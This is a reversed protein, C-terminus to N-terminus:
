GKRWSRGDTSDSEGEKLVAYFDTCKRTYSISNNTRKETKIKPLLFYVMEQQCINMIWEKRREKTGTNSTTASFRKEIQRRKMYRDGATM